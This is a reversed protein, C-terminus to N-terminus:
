ARFRWFVFGLVTCALGWRVFGLVTLGLGSFCWVRFGFGWLVFGLVRFGLGEFCM